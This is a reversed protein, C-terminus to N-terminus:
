KRRVHFYTIVSIFYFLIFYLSTLRVAATDEGAGVAILRGCRMFGCLCFLGRHRGEATDVRM